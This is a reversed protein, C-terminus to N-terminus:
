CRVVVSRVFRDSCRLSWHRLEGEATLRCETDNILAPTRHRDARYGMSRAANRPAVLRAERCKPTRMFGPANVAPSEVTMVMFRAKPSHGETQPSGFIVM